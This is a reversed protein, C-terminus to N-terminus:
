ALALRGLDLFCSCWAHFVTRDRQRMVHVSQVFEFCEPVLSM